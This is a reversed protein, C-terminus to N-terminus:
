RTVNYTKGKWEFTNALLNLKLVPPKAKPTTWGGSRTYERGGDIFLGSPSQVFDHGFRSLLLLGGEKTRELLVDVVPDFEKLGTRVLHKKAGPILEEGPATQWQYAFWNSWQPQPPVAQYFVAAGWPTQGGSTNRCSIEEIFQAEPHHKRLTEIHVATFSRNDSTFLRYVKRPAPKRPAKM